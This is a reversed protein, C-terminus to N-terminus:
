YHGPIAVNLVVQSMVCVVDVVVLLVLRLLLLVVVVLLLVLLVLLLVALVLVLLLLLLQKVTWAVICPRCHPWLLLLLVTHEASFRTRRKIMFM